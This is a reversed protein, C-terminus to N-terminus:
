KKNKFYKRFLFNSQLAKLDENLTVSGKELNQILLKLEAGSKEDRLIVGLPTNPNAAAIKLEAVTAQADTAMTELERVSKKLSNFITTDTVIDNALTGKKNLNKGFDSLSGLLNQAQLSAANLADTTSKLNQYVSEDNILKGITGEGTALKKAINKLDKTIALLNTNNEQLVAMMDETGVTMETALQDGVEAEGAKATGGYIILIKNGILGDTSIKVMADKRIYQTNAEEINMTVKVQNDSRFELSNVTGIKVGSFWINNGKQLGNVDKFVTILHMKRSFTSHLNGISLIGAALFILGVLVFVGIIVKRKNNTEQM